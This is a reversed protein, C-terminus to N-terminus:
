ETLDFRLYNTSLSAEASYIEDGFQITAPALHIKTPLPQIELAIKGRFFDADEEVFAQEVQHVTLGLRCNALLQPNGVFVSELPSPTTDATKGFGSWTATLSTSSVDFTTILNNVEPIAIFRTSFPGSWATICEVLPRAIATPSFNMEGNLELRSKLTMDLKLGELDGEIRFNSFNASLTGSTSTNASVLALPAGTKLSNMSNKITECVSGKFGAEIECSRTIQANLQDCEFKSAEANSICTKRDAEYEANQRGRAAECLPDIAESVCRNNLPNRFLCSSCDRTDRLRKCQAINAICVTADVCTQRECIVNNVAFSRLRSSFKLPNLKTTDFEAAISLDTLAAQLVDRLFPRKVEVLAIEPKEEAISFGSVRTNFDNILVTFTQKATAQDVRTVTTEPVQSRITKSHLICGSEKEVVLVEWRDPTSQDIDRSSWTRWRESEGVPLEQVSMPHGDAFWYHIITLPKDAGEIESYFYRIDGANSMNNAIGIPERAEIGNAFEARSVTVDAPCTSLDPIFSLDLAVTTISSTILMSSGTVMFIGRLAQTHRAPIHSIEPLAAGVQIEGLPVANIPIYNKGQQVIAKTLGSEFQLLTRQTLEPISEAYSGDEFVFDRSTIQLQNVRPSWELRSGGFDLLIEGSVSASIINGADDNVDVTAAIAIVQSGFNLKLRRFRYKGSRSAQAIFEAKIQDGLWDNDLKIVTDIEQLQSLALEATAARQNQVSAKDTINGSPQLVSCAAMMYLAILLCLFRILM